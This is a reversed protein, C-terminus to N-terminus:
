REPSTPLAAGGGRFVPTCPDREEDDNELGVWLFLTTDRAESWRFEFELQARVGFTHRFRVGRGPLAQSRLSDPAVTELARIDWRGTHGEWVQMCGALTLGFSPLPPSSITGRGETIPVSIWGGGTRIGAMVDAVGQAHLPVSAALLAAITAALVIRSM